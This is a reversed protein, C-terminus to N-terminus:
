NSAFLEIPLAVPHYGTPQLNLDKKALKNQTLPLIPMHSLSLIQQGFPISPEVGEKGVLVM